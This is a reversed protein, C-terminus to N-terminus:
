EKQYEQFFSEIFKHLMNFKFYIKDQQIKQPFKTHFNKLYSTATRQTKPYVKGM